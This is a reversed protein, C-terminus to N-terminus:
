NVIYSAKESWQLYNRVIEGVDNSQYFVKGKLYFDFIKREISTNPRTLTRFHYQNTKFDTSFTIDNDNRIPTTKRHIYTFVEEDVNIIECQLMEEDWEIFYVFLVDDKTYKKPLRPYFALEWEGSTITNLKPNDFAFYVDSKKGDKSPSDAYEVAVKLGSEGYQYIDITGKVMTKAHKLGMEIFYPNYKNVSNGCMYIVVDNRDRIITSLVNSFLTFEDTLYYSRSIFEDFLITTVNPYGTSKDHEMSALAFGYMFPTTDLVNKNLEEDFKAFFWQRSRYIINNWRGKTVKEVLGNKVHNALMTQGRVGKFDEEYRRILAGQKGTKAYNEIINSLCAYTKGNSREGFILRYHANTEDIKKTTYYKM